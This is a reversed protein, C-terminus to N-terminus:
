DFISSTSLSYNPQAHFFKLNEVPYAKYFRLFRRWGRDRRLPHVILKKNYHSIFEAMEAGQSPLVVDRMRAFWKISTLICNDTPDYGYPFKEIFIDSSNIEAPDCGLSRIAQAASIAFDKRVYENLARKQREQEFVGSTFGFNIGVSGNEQRQFFYAQVVNPLAIGFLIIVTYKNSMPTGFIWMLFAVSWFYIYEIEDPLLLMRVVYCISVCIFFVNMPSSQVRMKWTSREFFASATIIGWAPLGLVAAFGIASKVIRMWSPDGTNLIRFSESLSHFPKYFLLYPMAALLISFIFLTLVLKISSKKDFLLVLTLSILLIAYAPRTATALIAFLFTLLLLKYTRQSLFKMLSVTTLVAFCAGQSTELISNGAIITCPLLAIALCGLRTQFASVNSMKLFSHVGSLMVAVWLLSYFKGATIGFHYILPYVVGEYLPVGWSRSKVYGASSFNLANNLILYSDINEGVGISFNYFCPLIALALLVLSQLSEWSVYCAIKNTRNELFFWNRLSDTNM